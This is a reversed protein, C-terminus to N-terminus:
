LTRGGFIEAILVGGLALALGTAHYPAFPEGLLTVAMIAGLVPVLNYFLSARGPGIMAVARIFFVQALLSPFVIIYSMVIWGKMTPWQAHGLWMEAALLPTSTVAAVASLATFFVLASVPPRGRLAVAYAAYFFSAVLMAIDGINLEMGIIHQPEGHTAVVAVGGALLWARM